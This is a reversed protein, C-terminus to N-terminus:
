PGLSKTFRWEDDSAADDDPQVMSQCKEHSAFRNCTQFRIPFVLRVLLVCCHLHEPSAEAIGYESDLALKERPLIDVDLNRM